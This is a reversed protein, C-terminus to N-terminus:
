EINQIQERMREIEEKLNLVLRSIDTCAAKAGITNAERNLEQLIFNLSKGVPGKERVKVQFQNLHSKFRTCEESIDSREAFYAVEQELRLSDPDCGETLVERIRKSLRQRYSEVNTQSHKEIQIVKRSLLKLRLLLDKRLNAGERRRMVNLDALARSVVKSVLPWLREAIGEAMDTRFIDQVQLLHNIEIEGPLKYKKKLDKLQCYVEEATKQRLVIKEIGIGYDEYNITLTIKGRSINSAILEKLKPELAFIQKPMRFSHELFRSNVSSVEVSLTLKSSSFDAKGYGTMSNM